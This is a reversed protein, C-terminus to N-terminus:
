VEYTEGKIADRLNDADSGVLVALQAVKAFHQFREINAATRFLKAM